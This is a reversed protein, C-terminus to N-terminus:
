RNNLVETGTQAPAQAAAAQAAAAKAADAKIAALRPNSLEQIRNWEFWRHVDSGAMGETIALPEAYVSTYPRAFQAAKSAIPAVVPAVLPAVMPKLGNLAYPLTTFAAGGLGWQNGAALADGWTDKSDVLPSNWVTGIAGAGGYGLAARSATGNISLATAESLGPGLLKNTVGSAKAIQNYMGVPVRLAMPVLTGALGGTLGAVGSLELAAVGTDKVDYRKGTEPNTLLPNTTGLSYIGGWTAGEAAKWGLNGLARRANIDAITTGIRDGTMRLQDGELNLYRGNFGERANTWINKTYAAVTSGPNAGLAEAQQKAAGGFPNYKALGTAEESNFGRMPPLIGKWAVAEKRADGLGQSFATMEEKATLSERSSMAKAFKANVAEQAKPSLTGFAENIGPHSSPGVSPKTGPLADGAASATTTVQGVISSRSLAGSEGAVSSEAVSAIPARAMPVGSLAAERGAINKVAGAALVSFGSRTLWEPTDLTSTGLIKNSALDLGKSTSASGLWATAGYVIGAGVKVAINPAESVLSGAVRQALVIGIAGGAVDYVMHAGNSLAANKVKAVSADALESNINRAVALDEAAGKEKQAAESGAGAVGAILGGVVPVPLALRGVDDMLNLALVVPSAIKNPKLGLDIRIVAGQAQAEKANIAQHDKVQQVIGYIVPQDAAAPDVSSLSKLTAIAKQNLEDAQRTVADHNQKDTAAQHYLDNATDNLANAFFLRAQMPQQRLATLIEDHQAGSRLQAQLQTLAALNEGSQQTRLVYDSKLKETEKRSVEIAHDLDELKIRDSAEVAKAFFPQAQALRDASSGQKGSMIEFAKAMETYGPVAQELTLPAKPPKEAATQDGIQAPRMQDAPQAPQAPPEAPTGNTGDARRPAFGIIPQMSLPVPSLLAPDFYTITGDRVASPLIPNTSKDGGSIPHKLGAGGSTAIQMVETYHKMYNADPPVAPPRGLMWPDASAAEQLKSQGRAIQADPQTSGVSARILALGYNAETYGVSRQLDQVSRDEQKLTILAESANATDLGLKKMEPPTLDRGQSQAKAVTDMDAALMKRERVIGNVFDSSKPQGTVNDMQVSGDRNVNYVDRKAHAIAEEYTQSAIALMRSWGETGPAIGFKESRNADAMQASAQKLDSRISDMEQACMQRFAARDKPDAVHGVRDTAVGAGQDFAQRTLHQRSAENVDNTFGQNSSDTSPTQKYTM